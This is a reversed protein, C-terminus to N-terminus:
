QRKNNRELGMLRKKGVPKIEGGMSGIKIDNAVKELSDKIKELTNSHNQVQWLLDIDDMQGGGGYLKIFQM